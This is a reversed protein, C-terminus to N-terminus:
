YLVGLGRPQQLPLYDWLQTLETKQPTLNRIWESEGKHGRADDCNVTKITVPTLSPCCVVIDVPETIKKRVIDRISADETPPIIGVGVTARMDAALIEIIM